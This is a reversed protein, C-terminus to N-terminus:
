RFTIECENNLGQCIYPVTQESYIIQSLFPWWTAVGALCGALDEVSPDECIRSLAQIELPVVEPSRLKGWM